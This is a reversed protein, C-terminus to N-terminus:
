RLAEYVTRGRSRLFHGAIYHFNESHGAFLLGGRAILPHFRELVALQTARDFYIMANRCFIAALPGDVAWAAECLNIHRFDVRARLEPRVKVYGAFAGDGRLFFRRLREEGLPQVRALPYVGARATELAGTDLDSAIVRTDAPVADGAEILAM